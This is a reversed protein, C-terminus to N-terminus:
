KLRVLIKVPVEDRILVSVGVDVDMGSLPELAKKVRQLVTLRNQLDKVVEEYVSIEDQPTPNVIIKLGMLDIEQSGQSVAVEGGVIKALSSRVKNLKEIRVRAEDLRRLYDGLLSRIKNIQDDVPKVLDAVKEYERIEVVM